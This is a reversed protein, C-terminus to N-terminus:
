SESKPKYFKAKVLAIPLDVTLKDKQAKPIPMYDTKLYFEGFEDVFKDTVTIMDSELNYSTHSSVCTLKLVDGDYLPLVKQEEM